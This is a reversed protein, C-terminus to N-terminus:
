RLIGGATGGVGGAITSASVKERPGVKDKGWAHLVFGRSASVLIDALHTKGFPSWKGWFATGLTFWQIGSALAFLTPTNSRIVGAFGGVLM